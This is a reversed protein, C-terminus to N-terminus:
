MVMRFYGVDLAQEIALLKNLHIYFKADLKLTKLNCKDLFDFANIVNKVVISEDYNLQIRNNISGDLLSLTQIPSLSINEFLFLTQAFYLKTNERLM